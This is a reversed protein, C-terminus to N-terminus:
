LATTVLTVTPPEIDVGPSCPVGVFMVEGQL